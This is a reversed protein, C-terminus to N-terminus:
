NASACSSIRNMSAFRSEEVSDNICTSWKIMTLADLKVINERVLLHNKCDFSIFCCAVRVRLSARNSELRTGAIKAPLRVRQGMIFRSKRRDDRRGDSRRENAVSSRGLTACCRTWADADVALLSAEENRDQFLIPRCAKEIKKKEEARQFLIKVLADTRRTTVWFIRPNYHRQKKGVPRRM